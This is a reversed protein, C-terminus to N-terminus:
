NATEVIVDDLYLLNLSNIAVGKVWPKVLYLKEARYLPAIIAADELLLKQAQDYLAQRRATANPAAPSIEAGQAVWRDYRPDTWRSYNNGSGSIFVNLYSDADPYDVFWGMRYLHPPDSNLTSLYVKWEMNQLRVNVGLVKKWLFQAIEMEKQIDYHTMYALQVEPFGKGRPYGADALLQRARTPNFDLGISPNHGILGPTIWSKFPVQGSQMLRAFYSRDLAMVFAQRVRVDNFPPKQTNFGLYNIRHLTVQHAEPSTRLRRVDFGPISTTTEIFDLGSPQRAAHNGAAQPRHRNNEYLIVSTNADGVMLMNVQSLKPLHWYYRNPTLTIQSEHQWQAMNFPGNGVWYKAETFQSGYRNIVDQRVPLAIPAALLSLFFSVPHDLQVQLTRDNLARVGVQNFDTLQGDYFAKAHRIPTLFFAYAAGNKSTLARRWGDVFHQATVPQGDSWRVNPRLTFTYTKGDSSVTWREAMDPLLEQNAGFRTLGRMVNLIVTYSTLDTVQVPDLSPPETGLNLTFTQAPSRQPNQASFNAPAHNSLACGLLTTATALGLFGLGIAQRPLKFASMM